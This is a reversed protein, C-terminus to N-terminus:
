GTPRNVGAIPRWIRHAHVIGGQVSLSSEPMTIARDGPTQLEVMRGVDNVALIYGLNTGNMAMVPKGELMASTMGKNTKMHWETPTFGANVANQIDAVPPNFQQALAPFVLVAAALLTPILRDTFTMKQEGISVFNANQIQAADPM